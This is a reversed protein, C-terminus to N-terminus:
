AGSIRRITRKGDAAYKMVAGLPTAKSVQGGTNSYCETDMVLINIDIDQALVHDLGAFGIDYAWGDGGIAWVSQKPLMDARELIKRGAPNDPCSAEIAKVLATGAADADAADARGRLWSQAADRVESPVSSDGALVSVDAALTARRAATACAMGFGYEANDEFLSNGWAPGRGTETDTCYANSPFNAGWISSCGTANAILLRQGFLQTLLKVYPTEGCGACAGSFQM